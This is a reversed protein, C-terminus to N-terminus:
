RVNQGQVGNMATQQGAAAQQALKYEAIAAAFQTPFQQAPTLGQENIPADGLRLALALEARVEDRTKGAVVARAPFNHPAAEYATLGRDGDVVIDGTRIAEALEGRVEARTKGAAVPTAAYRHPAVQRFTQMTDHDAIMDGNRIAAALEARVQERSLGEAHASAFTGSLSAIALVLAIPRITNMFISRLLHIFLFNFLPHNPTRRTM